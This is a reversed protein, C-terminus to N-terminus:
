FFFSNSQLNVMDDRTGPSAAVVDPIKLRQALFTINALAVFVCGVQSSAYLSSLYSYIVIQEITDRDRQAEASDALDRNPRERYAHGNARAVISRFFAVTATRAMGSQTVCM